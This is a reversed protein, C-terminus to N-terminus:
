LSSSPTASRKWWTAQPSAKKRKWCGCRRLFEANMKNWDEWTMIKGCNSLFTDSLKVTHREEGVLPHHQGEREELTGVLERRKDEASPDAPGVQHGIGPLIPM